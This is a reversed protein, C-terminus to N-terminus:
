ITNLEQVLPRFVKGVDYPSLKNLPKTKTPLLKPVRRSRKNIEGENGKAILPPKQGISLVKNMKTNIAKVVDKSNNRPIVGSYTLKCGLPAV